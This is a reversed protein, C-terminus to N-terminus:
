DDPKDMPLPVRPGHIAPPRGLYGIGKTSPTVWAYTGAATIAAPAAFTMVYAANGNPSVAIQVSACLTLSVYAADHVNQEM